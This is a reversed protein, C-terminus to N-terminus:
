SIVLQLEMSNVNALQKISANNEKGDKLVLVNAIMLCIVQLIVMITVTKQALLKKRVSIM